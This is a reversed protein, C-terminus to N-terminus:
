RFLPYLDDCYATRVDSSFVFSRLLPYAIYRTRMIAIAPVIKANACGASAVKCVSVRACACACVPLCAFVYLGCTASLLGDLKGWPLGSVCVVSPTLGVAAWVAFGVRIRGHAEHASRLLSLLPTHVRTCARRVRARCQAQHGFPRPRLASARAARPMTLVPWYWLVVFCVRCDCRAHAHAHTPASHHATNCFTRQTQVSVPTSHQLKGCSRQLPTRQTAVCSRRLLASPSQGVSRSALAAEIGALEFDQVRVCLHVCACVCRAEASHRRSGTQYVALATGACRALARAHAHTHAHTHAREHRPRPL